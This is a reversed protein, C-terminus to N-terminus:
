ADERTRSTDRVSPVCGADYRAPVQSVTCLDAAVLFAGVDRALAAGFGAAGPIHGARRVCV